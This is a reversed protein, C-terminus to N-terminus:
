TKVEHPNKMYRDAHKELDEGQVPQEQVQRGRDKLEKVLKGLGSTVKYKDCFDIYFKVGVIMGLWGDPKYDKEMM